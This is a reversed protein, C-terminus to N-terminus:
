TLLRVPRLARGQARQAEQVHVARPGCGNGPVVICICVYMCVYM